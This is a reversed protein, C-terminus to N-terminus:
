AAGATKRQSSSSSRWPWARSGRAPAKTVKTPAPGTAFTSGYRTRPGCICGTSPRYDCFALLQDLDSTIKAAAKPFKARYAAAFSRAAALAHQKGEANWIEALANKAGPHASNPFAALVSATQHFRCRQQTAQPFVEGLAGWFGAGTM